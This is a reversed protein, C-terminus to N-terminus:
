FKKPRLVDVESIFLIMAYNELYNKKLFEVIKECIKNDCIIEVKINSNASWIANRIGKEGKGTVSTITYGKAGLEDVDKLLHEEIDSETIITLLSEKFFDM